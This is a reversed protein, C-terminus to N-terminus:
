KNENKLVWHRWANNLIAASLHPSIKQKRNASWCFSVLIVSYSKQSHLSHSHGATRFCCPFLGSNAKACFRAVDFTRFSKKIHVCLDMCPISCSHFQFITDNIGIDSDFSFLLCVISKTVDIKACEEISPWISILWDCGVYSGLISGLDCHHSALTIVVGWGIFWDANRVCTLSIICLIMVTGSKCRNTHRNKCCSGCEPQSSNEWVLIGAFFYIWVCFM